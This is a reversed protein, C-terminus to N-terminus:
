VQSLGGDIELEVGTIFSAEDSALFLVSKAIEESSGFRGLPVQQAFGQGMQNLQEESMDMKGYIPTDIPGPAVSVARIKKASLENTLVRSLLRLAGKTASYVASGPFGKQHVISTNGIIVGGENLHPIAAKITFFPSKVNTNFHDDFHEETIDSMPMFHAIGANLFLIDINGYAAVAKQVAAQSAAIDKADALVATVDGGIEKVAADLAEQRRGTIVVKAGEKVFLKATALGIGSNGGTIFAVKNELRSM